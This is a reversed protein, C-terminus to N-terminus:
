SDNNPKAPDLGSEIVIASSALTVINSVSYLMGSKKRIATYTLKNRTTNSATAYLDMRYKEFVWVFSLMLRDSRLNILNKELFAFVVCALNYLIGRMSDSNLSEDSCCVSGLFRM